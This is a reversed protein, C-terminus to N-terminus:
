QHNSILAARCAFRGKLPKKFVSACPRWQVFEARDLM